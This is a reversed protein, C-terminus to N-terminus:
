LSDKVVDVVTELWRLQQVPAGDSRKKGTDLLVAFPKGEETPSWVLRNKADRISSQLGCSELLLNFRKASVSIRKGLDTPTFHRIQEKAKLHTSELLELCDTGTMKKVATNASLIAQNGKLGILTAMHLASNLCSDAEAMVQSAKPAAAKQPVEYRGTKRISPLVEST